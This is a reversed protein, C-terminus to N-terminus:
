RLASSGNKRRHNRLAKKIKQALAKQHEGRTPRRETM